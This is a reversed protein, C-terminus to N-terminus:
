RFADLLKGFQRRTVLLAHFAGIGSRGKQPVQHQLSRGTFHSVGGVSKNLKSGGAGQPRLACSADCLWSEYWEIRETRGSRSLHAIKLPDQGFHGRTGLM